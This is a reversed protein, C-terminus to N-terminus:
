NYNQENNDEKNGLYKVYIQCPNNEDWLGPICEFEKYDMAQYFANTKDYDEYIGSEVTKVQGYSFSLTRALDEFAKILLSGLGLRHYKKMVGMVFIEACDKSTAKMVLFGVPKDDIFIALFRKDLSEEIYTKRSEGISFWDTLDDLVLNGIKEKEKKDKIEILKSKM